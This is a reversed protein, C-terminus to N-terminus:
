VSIIEGTHTVYIYGLVNINFSKVIPHQQINKITTKVHKKVEDFGNFAELADRAGLLRLIEERPYGSKKSITELLLNVQQQTMLSGCDTHGIVAVLKVDLKTIALIISRLTDLSFTAGANRILIAEGPDEIGFVNSIIRCDMCTLIAVKWNPYASLEKYPFFFKINRWKKLKNEFEAIDM